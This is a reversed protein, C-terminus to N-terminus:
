DGRIVSRDRSARPGEHGEDLERAAKHGSYVAHAILAPQRCDGIRQINQTPGAPEEGVLERYLEERPERSTVLVVTSARQQWRRGSYVCGLTVASGDLGELTTSVRVEVGLKLLQSQTRKLEGTCHSREGASRTTTVYTVSAGARALLVAIM